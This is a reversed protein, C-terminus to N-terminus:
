LDLRGPKGEGRILVRPAALALLMGIPVNVFMIWRWSLYNTILGGMLLGVAGGGASVGSYVGLARNREAGQPFMAALLSLATPALVAAGIGQAARAGILYHSYNCFGGALSGATFVLAGIIFMRRRGFLDGARGGLLLLGGFTITYANIVWELDTPNFHLAHQISPSPLNVIASDLVVMLQALALLVLALNLNRPKNM